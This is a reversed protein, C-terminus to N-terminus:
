RGVFFSIDCCLDWHQLMYQPTNLGALHSCTCLGPAPWVNPDDIVSASPSLLVVSAVCTDMARRETVLSRLLQNFKQKPCKTLNKDAIPDGSYVDPTM